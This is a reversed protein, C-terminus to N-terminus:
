GRPSASGLGESRPWQLFARGAGTLIVVKCSDDLAIEDLASHLDAVLDFNLANLRDPRSLRLLVINPEMPEIEVVAM